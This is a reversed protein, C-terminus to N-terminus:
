SAKKVPVEFGFESGSDLKAYKVSGNLIGINQKVLYLGLGSGFSVGTHFRQFMGFIKSRYKEDIGLGNDTVIVTSKHDQTTIRIDLFPQDESLDAYKIANSVLNELSQQFYLRATRIKKDGKIDVKFVMKDYNELAKMKELTATVLDSLDIDEFMVDSMKMRTLNIIDEILTDLKVMSDKIYALAKTSVETDKEQIGREATQALGYSSIVPARLDHSIRYSFEILETNTKELSKTKSVIENAMPRFIFIAELTLTILGLLLFMTELMSFKAVKQEAEEQYRYVVANLHQM